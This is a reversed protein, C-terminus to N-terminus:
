VAAKRNAIFHNYDKIKHNRRMMLSLEDERLATIMNEEQPTIDMVAGEREKLFLIKVALTM